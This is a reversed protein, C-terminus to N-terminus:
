LQNNSQLFIKIGTHKHILNQLQHLYFIGKYTVGKTKDEKHEVLCVGNSSDVMLEVNDVIIHLLGSSKNFFCYEDERVNQKSLPVPSLDGVKCTVKNSLYYGDDVMDMITVVDDKYMVSNFVRYENIEMIM